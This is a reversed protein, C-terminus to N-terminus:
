HLRCLDKPKLAKSIALVDELEVILYLFRGKVKTQRLLLLVSRLNVTKRYFTGVKTKRMSHKGYSTHDLGISSMWGRVLRAYQRTSIHLREHFQGSWLYESGVM